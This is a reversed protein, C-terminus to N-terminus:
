ESWDPKRVNERNLRMGHDSCATELLVFDECNAHDVSDNSYTVLDMELTIAELHLVHIERECIMQILNSVLRSFKDGDIQFISLHELSSPLLDGLFIDEDVNRPQVPMMLNHHPIALTKLVSFEKFSGFSIRECDIIDEDDAFGVERMTPYWPPFCVTLDELSQSYQLLSKRLERPEFLNNLVMEYPDWHPYCGYQMKFSRLPGCAALWDDIVGIGVVGDISLETVSHTPNTICSTDLAIHSTYVLPQNQVGTITIKRVAPLYFFPRVLNIDVYYTSFGNYPVERAALSGIEVERLFSFPPSEQFPKWREAAKNLYRQALDPLGYSVFLERVHSLRTLLVGVWAEDSLLLLQWLWDKPNYWDGCVENLVSSLLSIDINVDGKLLEVHRRDGRHINTPDDAVIKLCRVFSALNPRRCINQILPIGVECFVGLGERRFMSSLDLRSYLLPLFLHYFQRSYGVLSRKTKLDDVHQGIMLLLENPLHRPAEM